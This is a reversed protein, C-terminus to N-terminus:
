EMKRADPWSNDEIPYNKWKVLYQLYEKWRTQKAVQTDLNSEIELPLIYPMQRIWTEGGDQTSWTPWTTRYEEEPNTTYPFLNAVNFIPSIGIRPPLQIEYANALFKWIVKSPGIKKYKLKNYTNRPFCEKHLHM